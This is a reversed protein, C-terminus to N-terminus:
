RLAEENNADRGQLHIVLDGQVGPPMESESNARRYGQRSHVAARPDLWSGQIPQYQTTEEFSVRADSSRSEDGSPRRPTYSGSPPPLFPLSSENSTRGPSHASPPSLSSNSEARFRPSYSTSPSLVPATTFPSHHTSPVLHEHLEIPPFPASHDTYDSSSSLPPPEESSYDSTWLLTNQRRVVGVKVALTELPDLLLKSLLRSLRRFTFTYYRYTRTMRLGHM